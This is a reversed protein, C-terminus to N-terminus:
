RHIGLNQIVPTMLVLISVTSGLFTLCHPSPAETCVTIEFLHTGEGDKSACFHALADWTSLQLVSSPFVMQMVVSPEGAGVAETQAIKM